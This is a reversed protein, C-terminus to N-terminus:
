ETILRVEDWDDPNIDSTLSEKLTDDFFDTMMSKLIATLYENEVTGSFNVLKTLPSYMYVMAFDYHTTGDIQYLTSQALSNELIANLNVNNEGTEWQGSRIFLSPVSLEKEIDIDNIPEVWADLGMVSTIRDDNLAVLVDGGGGTSHGLLGIKSVDLKESFRSTSANDNIEELYDITMSVDDAYTTVLQNAYGLFDDTSDRNPLAELNVYAVEDDFVTAVAGYTHNIGVVIYGMSALEEAFDVHLDRIGRWGHSLIIVPYNTESTSIPANLYSNSMVNTTHDLVFAPFSMDESLGRSVPLGDELWPALDYGETEEAPYWIQIKIKRLESSDDSYLEYRTDSDIIYSETGIMYDGTPTPITYIPFVFSSIGSVVLLFVGIGILSKRVVSNLVVQFVEKLLVLLGLLLLSVYLPVLQWRVDNFVFHLVIGLQGVGLLVVTYKKSISKKSLIIGLVIITLIYVFMELIYM